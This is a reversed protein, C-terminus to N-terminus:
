VKQEHLEPPLTILDLFAPRGASISNTRMNRGQPIQPPMRSGFCSLEPLNGEVQIRKLPVKEIGGEVQIDPRREKGGGRVPEGPPSPKKDGKEGPFIVGPRRKKILLVPVGGGHRPSEGGGPAKGSRVLDDPFNVGATHPGTVTGVRKEGQYEGPVFFEAKGTPSNPNKLERIKKKLNERELRPGPSGAAASM